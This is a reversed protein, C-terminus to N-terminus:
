EVGWRRGPSVVGGGSGACSLTTQADAGKLPAQPPPPLMLWNASSPVAASM